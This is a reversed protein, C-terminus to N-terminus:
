PHIRAGEFRVTTMVVEQSWIVETVIIDGDEVTEPLAAVNEALTFPHALGTWHTPRRTYERPGLALSGM